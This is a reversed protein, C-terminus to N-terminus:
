LRLASHLTSPTSSLGEAWEPFAHLMSAVMFQAPTENHRALPVPRRSPHREFWSAEHSRLGSLEICFTYVEIRVPLITEASRQIGSM